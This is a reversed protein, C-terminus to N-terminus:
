NPIKVANMNSVCELSYSAFKGHNDKECSYSLSNLFSCEFLPRVNFDSPILFFGVVTNEFLHLAFFVCMLM